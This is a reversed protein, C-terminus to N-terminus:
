RHEADVTLGKLFIGVAEDAYASSDPLGVSLPPFLRTALAYVLLSGVFVRASVQPDHPRLTGRAIQQELYTTLLGVLPLAAESFAAGMEPMRAVESLFIRMLQAMGPRQFSDFYAHAIFRFFQEPPLEFLPAPDAAIRFMPIVQAVAATLLEQKNKFYWYILSPATLGAEAAIQKITARYYGNAAFIRLAAEIIEERRTDAM